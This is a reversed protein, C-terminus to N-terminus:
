QDESESEDVKASLGIKRNESDIKIIKAKIVHAVDLKDKVEDDIEDAFILGELEEELKVFVGFDTIKVVETEIVKGVPYNELVKPWPDEKLQKFGLVVRRNDHDIQNIEFEYMHNRKLIEQPRNVRKTWSLDKTYVIGEIAEPLEVFAASQIFGTVKGTVKAGPIFSEPLNEWPDKELRKISLSIKKDKSDINMIKVEIVDGIAFMEQPNIKKSNWSFESVHVLGEIGKELEIFLGYNTINTIKGNVLSGVPFRDEINDWPDPTLQKMGLSLRQAEKDIKLIMVEIQSGVAVIESPHRVKKWSMDAIHLLGDVGGLDIFAGFDTIRKVTGKVVQGVELSDWIKDRQRERELRIADRRSVIFNQKVKSLKIIKFLFKHNIAENDPVRKFGSLSAPLFGEAGHVEVMYGGKVKRTVLGEALDGENYESVLTNWGLNKKAKEYSIVLRGDEDEVTEIFVKVKKGEQPEEDVSFEDRVVVGESKHGIDVIVEKKRVELIIGEVIDGDNLEKITSLYAQELEELSNQVL